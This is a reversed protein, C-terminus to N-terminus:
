TRTPARRGLTKPHIHAQGDGHSHIGGSSPPLDIWDGCIEVRVSAHIHDGVQAGEATAPSGASGCAMGGVFILVFFGIGRTVRVATRDGTLLLLLAGFGGLVTQGQPDNVTPKLSVYIKALFAM